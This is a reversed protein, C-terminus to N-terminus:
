SAAQKSQLPSRVTAEIFETSVIVGHKALIDIQAKARDSSRIEKM